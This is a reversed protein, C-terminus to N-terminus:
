PSFALQLTTQVGTSILSANGDNWEYADLRKNTDRMVLQDKSDFFVRGDDTLGLGYAPLSSDATPLGETILCSVCDTRDGDADYRYLMYFGANDYDDAPVLTAFMAYRGDPTVQFDGYRHDSAAQVAHEVAPHDVPDYPAPAVGFEVINSGNAAFVRKSTQNVAVGRSGSIAESAFQTVQAGTSEFLSIKGGENVYLDDTQPDVALALGSSAVDVGFEVPPFGEVFSGADFVKVPGNPASAAYVNGTSDAAVACPNITVLLATVTYDADTIPATGTPSYRWIAGARDGIYVDGSSQEVAVGCPELFSGFFTGSGNLEGLAEGSSDYVAVTPADTVYFAGDFPGGSNDVAIQAESSPLTHGGIQNTGAGPGASFNHPAGTSDFRM